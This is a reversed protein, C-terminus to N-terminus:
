AITPDPKDADVLAELAELLATMGVPGVMVAGGPARGLVRLSRAAAVVDLMAQIAALTPM